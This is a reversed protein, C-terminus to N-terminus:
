CRSPIAAHCESCMVDHQQSMNKGSLGHPSLRGQKIWEEKCQPCLVGMQPSKERQTDELPSFVKELEELKEEIFIFIFGLPVGLWDLFKKWFIVVVFFGAIYVLMEM